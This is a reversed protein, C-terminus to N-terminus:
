RLDTVVWGGSLTAANFRFASLDDSVPSTSIGTLKFDLKDGDKPCYSGSINGGNSKLNQLNDLYQRPDDTFEGTGEAKDIYVEKAAPDVTWRTSGDCLVKIGNGELAYCQGQIVLVGSGIVPVDGQMKFSYNMTVRGADLQRRFESVVDQALILQSLIISSILTLIRKM